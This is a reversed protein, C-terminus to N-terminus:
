KQNKILQQRVKARFNPDTTYNKANPNHPVAHLIAFFTAQDRYYISILIKGLAERTSSAAVNYGYNNLSQIVGGINNDVVMTMYGRIDAITTGGDANLYGQPWGSADLASMISSYEGDNRKRRGGDASSSSGCPRTVVCGYVPNGGGDTGTQQITGCSAGKQCDTGILGSVRRKAKVIM